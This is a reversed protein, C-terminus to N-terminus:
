FGPAGIAEGVFGGGYSWQDATPNQVVITVDIGPFATYGRLTNGVATEVFTRMPMGGSAVFVPEAGINIALVLLPNALTPMAVDQFQTFLVKEVRFARQPRVATTVTANGAVIVRGPLPLVLRRMVGSDGSDVVREPGAGPYRGMQQGYGQPAAQGPDFQGQSLGFRGGGRMGKKLLELAERDDEGIIDRGAIERGVGRGRFGTFGSFGQYPFWQM